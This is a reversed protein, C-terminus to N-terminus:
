RSGSFFVLNGKKNRYAANVPTIVHPWYDKVRKPEGKILRPSLSWFWDGQIFHTSWSGDAVVADYKSAPRCAPHVGPEFTPPPTPTPAPTPTTTSDSIPPTNPETIISPTTKKTM